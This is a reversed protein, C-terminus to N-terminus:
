LLCVNIRKLTAAINSNMLALNIIGEEFIREKKFYIRFLFTSTYEYIPFGASAINRQPKEKTEKTM